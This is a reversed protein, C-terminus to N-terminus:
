YYLFIYYNFADDNQEEKGIKTKYKYIKYKKITSDKDIKLFKSTIIYPVVKGNEVYFFDKKKLKKGIFCDDDMAIFNDSIGFKKMKWYHFQFLNSNSSDFGILDKDKVYVIKDRILSYNKFFRVRENPM